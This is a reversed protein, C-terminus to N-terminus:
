FYVRIDGWLIPHPSYDHSDESTVEANSVSTPLTVPHGIGTDARGLADTQLRESAPIAPEFGVPAM